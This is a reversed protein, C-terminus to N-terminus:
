DIELDAYDVILVRANKQKKADGEDSLLLLLNESGLTIPAIAETRRLSKVGAIRVRRPSNKTSGNWFWLKFPKEKKDAERQSIILYGDLKSDFVIDRIGGGGLDLLQLTESFEFSSDTEFVDRLNNLGVLIAKDEVLPARFGIWLTDQNKNFTLGEINLGANDKVNRETASVKLETFANVLANRMDRRISIQGIRNGDVTMRVLQERKVDRKGNDQRSHSTIAYIYKNPGLVLAELDDLGSGFGSLLTELVSRSRLLDVGFTSTGPRPTLLVFARSPEDEVVLLREDQLQVVGSPEFLGSFAQFGHVGLNLDTESASIPKLLCLLMAATLAHRLGMQRPSSLASSRRTDITLQQLARLLETLTNM